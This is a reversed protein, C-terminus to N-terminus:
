LHDKFIGEDGFNARFQLERYLYLPDFNASLMVNLGKLIRKLEKLQSSVFKSLNYPATDFNKDKM